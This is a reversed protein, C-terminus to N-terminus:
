VGRSLTSTEQDVSRGLGVLLLIGMVILVMWFALYAHKMTITKTTGFYLICFPDFVLAIFLLSTVAGVLYAIFQKSELGHIGIGMMAALVNSVEAFMLFMLWYVVWDGPGGHGFSSWSSADHHKTIIRYGSMSGSYTAMGHLPTTVFYMQQSRLISIERPRKGEVISWYKVEQMLLWTLCEWFFAGPVLTFYYYNFPIDGAMCMTTPLVLCWFYAPITGYFYTTNDILVVFRLLKGYEGTTLFWFGITTMIFFLLYYAFVLRIDTLLLMGFVFFGLYGVTCFLIKWFMFPGCKGQSGGFFSLWFLQVAGRSWRFVAALFDKNDKPTGFILKEYHYTGEYGSLLVKHSTATDEIMTREEYEFGREIAWVCNTGCSTVAGVGDRICNVYRFLYENQMDLYDTKLEIGVFNQPVQCYMVTEERQVIGNMDRFFHLITQEWFGPTVMHRCDFISFLKLNPPTSKLGLSLELNERDELVRVSFNMGGAKGRCRQQPNLWSEPLEIRDDNDLVKHKQPFRVILQAKIKKMDESLNILEYVNVNNGEMARFKLKRNVLGYCRRHAEGHSIRGEYPSPYPSPASHDYYTSPELAPLEPSGNLCAYVGPCLVRRKVVSKERQEPKGRNSYIMRLPRSVYTGFFFSIRGDKIEIFDHEKHVKDKKCNLYGHKFRGGDKFLRLEEAVSNNTVDDQAFSLVKLSFPDLSKYSKKESAATKLLSQAWQVMFVSFSGQGLWDRFGSMHTHVMKASDFGNQSSQGSSHHQSSYIPRHNGVDNDNLLFQPRLEIVGDKTEELRDHDFSRGPGSSVMSPAGAMNLDASTAFSSGGSLRLEDDEDDDDLEGGGGGSTNNQQLPNHVDTVDPLLNPQGRWPLQQQTQPITPTPDAPVHQHKRPEPILPQKVSSFSNSHMYSDRKLEDKPDYGEEWEYLTAGPEVDSPSEDIGHIVNWGTWVKKELMCDILEYLEYAYHLEALDDETLGYKVALSGINHFPDVVSEIESLLRKETSRTKFRDETEQLLEAPDRLRAAWAKLFGVMDVQCGEDKDVFRSLADWIAYAGSRATEDQFYDTLLAQPHYFSSACKGVLNRLVWLKHESASISFSVCEVGNAIAGQSNLTHLIPLRARSSGCRGIGPIYALVMSTYAMFMMSMFMWHWAPQETIILAWQFWGYNGKLWWLLKFYNKEQKNLEDQEQYYDDDVGKVDDGCNLDDDESDCYDAVLYRQPIIGDECHYKPQQLSAGCTVGCVGTMTVCRDDFPPGPVTKGINSDGPWDRVVCAVMYMQGPSGICCGLQAALLDDNAFDDDLRGAGGLPTHLRRPREEEGELYDEVELDQDEEEEFSDLLKRTSSSTVPSPAPNNGSDKTPKPTPIFSPAHTHLQPVTCVDITENLATVASLIAPYGPQYWKGKYDQAVYIVVYAAQDLETFNSVEVSVPYRIADSVGDCQDCMETNGFPSVGDHVFKIHRTSSYPTDSHYKVVPLITMMKLWLPYGVVLFFM